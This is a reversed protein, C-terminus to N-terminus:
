SANEAEVRRILHFVSEDVEACELVASDKGLMGHDTLVSLTGPWGATHTYLRSWLKRGSPTYRTIRYIKM